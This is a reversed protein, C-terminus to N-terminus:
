NSERGLWELLHSLSWLFEYMWDLGTGFHWVEVLPMIICGYHYVKRSIYAFYKKCFIYFNVISNFPSSLLGHLCFLLNFLCKFSIWDSLSSGDLGCFHTHVSYEASLCFGFAWESTSSPRFLKPRSSYLLSPFTYSAYQPGLSDQFARCYFLVLVVTM